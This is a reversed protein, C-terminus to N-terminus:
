SCDPSSEFTRAAYEQLTRFVPSVITISITIPMFILTGGLANNVNNLVACVSTSSHTSFARSSSYRLIYFVEDVMESMSEFDDKTDASANAQGMAQAETDMDLCVAKHVNSLM